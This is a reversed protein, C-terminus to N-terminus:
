FVLDFRQEAISQGWQDVPHEASMAFGAAEYLRRAPELGSFTWLFLRPHGAARAFEVARALLCSGLGRGRWAGATIFWRLRAGEEGPAGDVAVSGALEGGALGCLLLDRAPHYRGMFASLESAVQREFSLDFGWHRHYHEAHLATIRGILGPRYGALSVGSPPQSPM